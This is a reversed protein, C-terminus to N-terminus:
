AIAARNNTASRVTSAWTVCIKRLSPRGDFESECRRTRATSAYRRACQRASAAPGLRCFSAMPTSVIPFREWRHPASPRCGDTSYDPQKRRIAVAHSGHRLGLGVECALPGQNSGLHAWRFAGANPPKKRHLHRGGPSPERGDLDLEGHTQLSAEHWFFPSPARRESEDLGNDGTVRRTVPRKTRAKPIIRRPTRRRRDPARQQSSSTGRYRRFTRCAGLRRSGVIREAWRRTKYWRCGFEVFPLERDSSRSTWARAQRSGPTASSQGSM